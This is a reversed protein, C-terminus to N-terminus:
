APPAVANFNAHSLLQWKGTKPNVAFTSLREGSCSRSGEDCAGAIPGDRM